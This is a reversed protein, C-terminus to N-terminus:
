WRFSPPDYNVQLPVSYVNQAGSILVNVTFTSGKPPTITAPDFLFSAARRLRRAGRTYGDSAAAPRQLLRGSACGSGNGACGGPASQGRGARARQGHRRRHVRQNAENVDPGRVIHPILAFVVENESHDNTQSWFLYKLIPIQALDPIGSLSQTKQDEFM